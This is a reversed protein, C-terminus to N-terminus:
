ALLFKILLEAIKGMKRMISMQQKTKSAAEQAASASLDGQMSFKGEEPIGEKLRSKDLAVVCCCCFIM